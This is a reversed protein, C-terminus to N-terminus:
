KGVATLAFVVTHGDWKMEQRIARGNKDFWWESAVGMGTLRYRTGEVMQGNLQIRCAGLPEVRVPTTTGDESDLLVADRAKDAAPPRIGATTLVDRDIKRSTGGATITLKGEAALVKVALRKGNDNTTAELSALQGKQWVEVSRSEYTYTILRQKVKVSAVATVTEKGEGDTTASLTYTGAAKGDVTVAFTRVDTEPDAARLKGPDGLTALGLAVVTLIGVRAGPRLSGPKWDNILFM